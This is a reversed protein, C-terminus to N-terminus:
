VIGGVYRRDDRASQDRRQQCPHRHRNPLPSGFPRLDSLGNDLAKFLDAVSAVTGDLPARVPFGQGGSAGISAVTAKAATDNSAYHVAVTAGDRALREAIARGYGRSAGTVLALKGALGAM